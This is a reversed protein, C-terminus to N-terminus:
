KFSWLHLFCVVKLLGTVTKPHFIHKNSRGGFLMETKTAEWHQLHIQSFIQHGIIVLSKKGVLLQQQSAHRPSAKKRTRVRLESVSVLHWGSERLRRYCWGAALQYEDARQTTKTKASMNVKKDAWCWEDLVATCGPWLKRAWITSYRM